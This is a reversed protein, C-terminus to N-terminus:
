LTVLLLHRRSHMVDQVHDAIHQGLVLLFIILFVYKPFDGVFLSVRGREIHFGRKIIIIQWHQDILCIVFM